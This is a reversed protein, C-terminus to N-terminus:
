RKYTRPNEGKINVVGDRVGNLFSLVYELKNKQKIILLFSHILCFIIERLALIKPVHPYRLLHISNRVRYYRRQASHVPVCFGFINFSKDGISHIMRASPIIHVIIGKSFCRLCWETDVYDIFLSDDMLGVNDFIDTRVVTGSSIVTSTTFPETKGESFIKRRKGNKNIDIIAYEFGKTEDFFIPACINYSNECLPQLLTSIFTPNISSDQDFFIVYKYKRSLCEEIGINQAKAIGVNKHLCKYKNTCENLLESSYTSNDVIISDCGQQKLQEVLDMVRNVVPNYTVIVACIENTSNSM